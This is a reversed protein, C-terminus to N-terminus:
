SCKLTVQFQGCFNARGARMKRSLKHRRTFVIVREIEMAFLRAAPELGGTRAYNSYEAARSSNWDTQSRTNYLYSVVQKSAGMVGFQNLM